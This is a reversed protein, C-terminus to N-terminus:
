RQSGFSAFGRPFQWRQGGLKNQHLVAARAAAMGSKFKRANFVALRENTYPKAPQAMVRSLCGALVVDYHRKLLWVPMKPYNFSDVPDVVTLAVKATFVEVTAPELTLVLTGPTEMSASVPAGDANTTKLLLIISAPESESLEYETRDVVTTFTIDEQWALTTTLFENLTNFLELQILGDLAGPV